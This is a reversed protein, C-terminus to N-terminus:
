GFHGCYSPKFSFNRPGEFSRAHNNNVRYNFGGHPGGQRQQLVKRFKLVLAEEDHHRNRNANRSEELELRTAIEKLTPMDKESSIIIALNNFSSPLVNIIQEVIISANSLEGFQSLQNVIDQITHMFDVVNSGEEMHLNSFKHHIALRRANNSVEFCRKFVDWCQKPNKVNLIYPVIQDKISLKIISLAKM